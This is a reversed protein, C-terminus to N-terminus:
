NTKKNPSWPLPEFDIEEEILEKALLYSPINEFAYYRENYLIYGSRIALLFFLVITFISTKSKQFGLDM